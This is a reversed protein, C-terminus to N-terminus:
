KEFKQIYIILNLFNKNNCNVLTPAFTFIRVARSVTQAEPAPRPDIPFDPQLEPM